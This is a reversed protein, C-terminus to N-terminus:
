VRKLLFLYIIFIHLPYLVYFLYRVSFGKKGNYFFIFVAPAFSFVASCVNHLTAYEAFKYLYLVNFEKAIVGCIVSSYKLLSFILLAFIHQKRDKLFYFAFILGMGLFGYDFRFFQATTMFLIIVFYGFFKLVEYKKLNEFLYIGLVSLALTFLVNLDFFLNVKSNFIIDYIWESIFACVSLRLIYAKFDKTYRCGEAILYAFIPFAMRGICRFDNHWGFAITCHDIIM